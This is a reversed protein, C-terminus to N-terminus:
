SESECNALQNFLLAKDLPEWPDSGRLGTECVSFSLSFLAAPGLGPGFMALAEVPGEHRIGPGTAAGPLLGTEPALPYESIRRM